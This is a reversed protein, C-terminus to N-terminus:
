IKKACMRSEDFPLLFSNVEDRPLSSNIWQLESEEPLIVPMRHKSNHIESMLPNAECTLISYSYFRKGSEPGIWLSWIGALSFILMGPVSIDYKTKSKDENHHWEQFSTVPILCRQNKVAARFSAKEFVTESRANLTRKRIDSATKHDKVWHPVLGWNMQTIGESTVVPLNPHRFGNINEEPTLDFCCPTGYRNGLQM